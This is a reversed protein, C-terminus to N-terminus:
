KGEGPRATAPPKSRLFAACLKGAFSLRIYWALDDAQDTRMAGAQAGPQTGAKDSWGRGRGWTLNGALDTSFCVGCEM